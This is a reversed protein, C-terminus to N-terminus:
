DYIPVLTVYNYFSFFLNPFREVAEWSRYREDEVVIEIEDCSIQSKVYHSAALLMMALWISNIM